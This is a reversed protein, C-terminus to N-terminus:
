EAVAFEVSARGAQLAIPSSKPDGCAVSHSRMLAGSNRSRSMAAKWLRFRFTHASMVPSPKILKSFVPIRSQREVATYKATQSEM